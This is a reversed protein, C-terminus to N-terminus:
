KIAPSCFETNQAIIWEHLGKLSSQTPKMYLVDEGAKERIKERYRSRLLLNRNAIIITLALLQQAKRPRPLLSAKEQERM